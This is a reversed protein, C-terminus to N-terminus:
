PIPQKLSQGLALRDRVREEHKMSREDNVEHEHTSEAVDDDSTPMRTAYLDGM